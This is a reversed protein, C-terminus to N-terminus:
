QTRFIKYILSSLSQFNEQEGTHFYYYHIIILNNEKLVTEKLIRLQGRLEEERSEGEARDADVNLQFCMRIHCTIGHKSYMIYM